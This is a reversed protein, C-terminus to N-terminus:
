PVTSRTIGGTTQLSVSITAADGVDTGVEYGTLWCEGSYRPLGTTSGAPDYRFSVTGGGTIGFKIGDLLADIVPDFKIDLSFTGDELGTVYQKATNGMVSVEATDISRPMSIGTIYASIDTLTGANNDLSFKAKSGHSFAM